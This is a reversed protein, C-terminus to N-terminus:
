CCGKHIGAIAGVNFYVFTNQHNEM